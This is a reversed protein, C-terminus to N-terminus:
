DFLIRQVPLEITPLAEKVSFNEQCNLPWPNALSM